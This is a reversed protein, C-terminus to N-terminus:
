LTTPQLGGARTKISVAATQYREAALEPTLKPRQLAKNHQIGEKMLFRTLTNVSCSLGAQQIIDPNKIFPDNRILQFIRRKDRESLIPPRGSRPSSQASKQGRYRRRIGYVTAIPVGECEAIEKGTM